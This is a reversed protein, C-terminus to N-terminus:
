WIKDSLSVKMSWKPDEHNGEWERLLSYFTDRIKNFNRHIFIESDFMGAYDIGSVCCVYM